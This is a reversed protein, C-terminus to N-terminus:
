TQCGYTRRAIIKTQGRSISVWEVVHEGVHELPPIALASSALVLQNNNGVTENVPATEPKATLISNNNNNRKYVVVVGVPATEPEVTPKIKLLNNNIDVHEGNVLKNPSRPKNTNPSTNNVHTSDDSIEGDESTKLINKTQTCRRKPSRDKTPSSLSSSASLDKASGTTNVYWPLLSGHQPPTNYSLRSRDISPASGSSSCSRGVPHSPRDNSPSRNRRHQRPPSAYRPNIVNVQEFQNQPGNVGGDDYNSRIWEAVALRQIRSDVEFDYKMRNNSFTNPKVSIHKDVFLEGDLLHICELHDVNDLCTLFAITDDANPDSEREHPLFSFEWSDRNIRGRLTDCLQGYFINKFNKVKRIKTIVLSNIYRYTVYDRGERLTYRNNLNMLHLQFLSM